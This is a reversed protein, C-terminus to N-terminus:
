RETWEFRDPDVLVSVEDVLFCGLDYALKPVYILAACLVLVPWGPPTTTANM